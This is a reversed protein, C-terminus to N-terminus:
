ERRPENPLPEVQSPYLEAKRLCEQADQIQRSTMRAKIAAQAVRSLNQKAWVVDACTYRGAEESTYKQAMAPIPLLLLSALILRRM